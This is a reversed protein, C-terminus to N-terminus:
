VFTYENKTGVCRLQRQFESITPAEIEHVKILCDVSFYKCIDM